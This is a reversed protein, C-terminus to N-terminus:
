PLIARHTIWLQDCTSLAGRPAQFRCPFLPARQVSEGRRRALRYHTVDSVREFLWPTLGPDHDPEIGVFGFIERVKEVAVLACLAPLRSWLDRQLLHHQGLLRGFAPALVLARRQDARRYGEADAALRILDPVYGGLQGSPGGTLKRALRRLLEVPPRL